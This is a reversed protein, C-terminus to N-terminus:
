RCQGISVSIGEHDSGPVNFTAGDAACMSRSVFVHDIRLQLLVWAGDEYTSGAMTSRMADTMAADLLRYSTTRDSMNFDGALVVPLRETEAARLLRRVANAHQSFSIEHLPNALHIAYLIFPAGPREVEVRIASGIPITRPHPLERVPWASFVDIRGVHVVDDGPLTRELAEFVSERTEVAVVIGPNQAAIARAADGPRANDVFTNASVLRLPDVPPATRQPLRPAVTVVVALVLLSLSILAIRMDSLMAVGFVLLALVAAGLPLGFAVVDMSPGVDRVLFWAWPLAALALPVVWSMWPPRSRHREANAREDTAVV